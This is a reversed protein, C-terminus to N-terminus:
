AEEAPPAFSPGEARFCPLGRGCEADARARRAGERGAPAAQAAGPTRGLLCLPRALDSRCLLLVGEERRTLFGSRWIRRSGRLPTAILRAGRCRRPNLRKKYLRADGLTTVKPSRRELEGASAGIRISQAIRVRSLKPAYRPPPPPAVYLARDRCEEFEIWFSSGEGYAEAVRAFRVRRFSSERFPAEPV